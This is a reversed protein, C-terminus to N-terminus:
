QIKSLDVLRRNIFVPNSRRLIPRGGKKFEFAQDYFKFLHFGNHRLFDEIYRFPVHTKNYPNMGAEVQIFDIDDFSTIFGLLVDYDYGETDIKLFSVRKIELDNMYESGTKVPVTIIDTNSTSEDVIRNSTKTGSAVMQVSGNAKGLAMLHPTIGSYKNAEQQLLAFSAPVPEFSHISASPFANAYARASQGVNAGVDFIVEPRWEPLVKAIDKFFNPIKIGADM